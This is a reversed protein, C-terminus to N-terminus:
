SFLTKAVALQSIRKTLQGIDSAVADSLHAGFPNDKVRQMTVGGHRIGAFFQSRSEQQEQTRTPAEMDVAHLLKPFEPRMSRLYDALKVIHEYVEASVDFDLGLRAMGDSPENRKVVLGNFFCLGVTATTMAEAHLRRLYRLMTHLRRMDATDANTPVIVFDAICLALKTIGHLLGGDTDIVVIWREDGRALSARVAQAIESVQENRADEMGHEEESAAGPTRLPGNLWQARNTMLHLNAPASQVCTRVAHMHRKPDLRGLFLSAFLSRRRRISLALDEITCRSAVVHEEATESGGLLLRTIDGYISADVVLVNSDSHTAALEKAVFFCCTTKGVGGKHNAFTFVRVREHRRARARLASRTVALFVFIFLSGAVLAVLTSRLQTDM